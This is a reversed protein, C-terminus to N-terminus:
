RAKAPLEIVVAKLAEPTSELERAGAPFGNRSFIFALLDANQQRTLSGPEDEPMSTSITEFLKDTSQGIWPNLYRGTFEDRTHCSVCRADFVKAGRAAQEVTYVGDRVSRTSQAHVIAALATALLVFAFLPKM